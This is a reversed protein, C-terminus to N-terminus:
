YNNNHCKSLTTTLTIVEVAVKDIEKERKRRDQAAANSLFTNQQSTRSIRACLTNLAGKRSTWLNSDNLLVTRHIFTPLCKYIYWVM